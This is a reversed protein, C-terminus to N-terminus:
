LRGRKVFMCIAKKPDSLMENPFINGKTMNFERVVTFVNDRTKPWICKQKTSLKLRM